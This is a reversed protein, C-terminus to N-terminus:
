KKVVDKLLIESSIILYLNSSTANKDDFHKNSSLKVSIYPKFDMKKAPEKLVDALTSNKHKVQMSDKFVKLDDGTLKKGEKNFLWYIMKGHTLTTPEDFEYIYEAILSKVGKKDMNPYDRYLVLVRDNKENAIVFTSKDKFKYTGPAAKKSANVKAIKKQEDTLTQGIIYGDLGKKLSAVEDYLTNASLLSITFILAILLRM